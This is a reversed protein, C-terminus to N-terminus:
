KEFNEQWTLFKKELMSVLAYLALAMIVLLFVGVYVLPMDYSVRGRTILNGLGHNAGVLEGVVAGIVSLTAGIRLGGLFIPLAAPIEVKLLIQNRTAHLSHMLDYFAHPVARIGVITNILVPFFVILACILMKSFVGYGFWLVLLPAIAVIPIAQSAVLYPSLVRELARSKAVSYGLITALAVGSLLGLLVESLTVAFDLFLNGSRIAEIFRDWVALPPPLIFTALGTVQSTIQWCLLGLGLSLVRLWLRRGPSSSNSVPLKDINM